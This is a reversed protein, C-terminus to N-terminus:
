LKFPGFLHRPKVKERTDPTNTPKAKSHACYGDNLKDVPEGDSKTFIKCISISIKPSKRLNLCILKYASYEIM